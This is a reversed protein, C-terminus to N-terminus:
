DKVHMSKLNNFTFEHGGLHYPIEFKNAQYLGNKILKENASCVVVEGAFFTHDGFTITERVECEVHVPCEAIRPPGDDGWALSPIPTLGTETFKDVTRGTTRGILAFQKIIARSPVNIIFKGSGTILEHTFRKPSIAIGQMPPNMSLVTSWAVTGINVADGFRSTVLISLRPYVLFVHQDIDVKIKGAASESADQVSPVNKPAVM